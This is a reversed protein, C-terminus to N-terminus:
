HHEHQCGEQREAHSEDHGTVSRSPGSGVVNGHLDHSHNHHHHYVALSEAVPRGFTEIFAPDHSIDAPYGSCCVHQNLCIVKDTAAMVLHLDHSIMIVGCNLEDRLQRILDYLAAQGNIDVGQAPEDLVLLDPKRVLARALLLRQQEGGSLHHVSAELLHSVGTRELASICRALPQGSLQMFRKVSLPLTSELHLHQPVYGIVLGKARMIRGSTAAQIGLIAKILTTKGAGNPGIITIIDGRHLALNVRDVVTRGDFRVSLNEIAVLTENM